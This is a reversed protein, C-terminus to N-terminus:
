DVKMATIDAKVGLGLTLPLSVHHGRTTINDDHVALGITVAGNPKLVKDDPHGTDLKRVWEVTWMGDKWSGTVRANDAASGSAGARSVYYEPILDGAQWGANPDFAVANEEPVLAAPKAPDRIDDATRSRFGVKTEDFMYKPRNAKKDWNKAFVGKGADFLRYELVYGDDAMGVPNSRHGRWQMLDVFRGAALLKAIEDASKTRDWTASEDTRSGPLYKRVDKKRLTQGLLPHARVDDAKAVDPMDRMATHCSLWCGQEAFMPVGGDDIMLSLRDEYIAPKGDQWVNKHLRPSGYGRWATGDFRWHPHASGPFDNRTKWRFRLYANGDDYAAQVALEIVAQKGAIPHPELNKGAVIKAGLKAEKGKHCTLCSKGKLVLSRGKHGPGRLWQYSSQGPYFLKVTHVPVNSWDAPPAALASAALVAGLGVAVAGLAVSPIACTM